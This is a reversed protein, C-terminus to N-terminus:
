KFVDDIGGKTESTVYMCVESAPLAQIVAGELRARELKSNNKVVVYLRQADVRKSHLIEEGETWREVDAIPGQVAVAYEKVEDLSEHLVVKGNHILLINELLHEIEALHHSSILITRPHAIYDKLLARYFDTRVAEDMGNTPEDFMTLESRTSLGFIMNFTARAGKSLKSHQQKSNLKFYQFLRAALQADWRKYFAPASQLIEELTLSDPFTMQDDVLISNASVMLNNYPNKGFVSVEGSNHKTLGALVKLLTTKGAGNRGILGTIKQETLQFTINVLANTRRFGKSVKQCDIVNM